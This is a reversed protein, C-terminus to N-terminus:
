AIKLLTNMNRVTTVAIGPTTIGITTIEMAQHRQQNIQHGCLSQDANLPEIDMSRTTIAIVKLDQHRSLEPEATMHKIVRNKAYTVIVQMRLSVMSIPIRAEVYMLHIDKREM